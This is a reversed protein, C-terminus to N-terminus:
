LLALLKTFDERLFASIICRLLCSSKCLFSITFDHFISFVIIPLSLLYCWACCKIIIVLTYCVVSFNSMTKVNKKTDIPELNALKIVQVTM